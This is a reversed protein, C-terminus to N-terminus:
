RTAVAPEAHLRHLAQAAIPAGPGGGKAFTDLVYDLTVNGSMTDYPPVQTRCALGDCLDFDSTVVVFSPVSTVQFARFLRPDIGVNGFDSQRDVVQMVGQQFQKMSNNPFGNFVVSGGAKATDHILAKLSDKPMSLSAFVILQPAHGNKDGGAEVTSAITDFDIAGGPGGRVVGANRRMNAEGSKAMERVEDRVADGRREVEHAFTAADDENAEGRKLVQQIDLGDVNQALAYGAGGLALLLAPFLLRRSSARGMVARLLQAQAV